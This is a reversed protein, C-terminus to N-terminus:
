HTGNKGDLKAAMKKIYEKVLDKEGRSWWKILDFLEWALSDDGMPLPEFDKHEPPAGEEEITPLFNDHDFLTIFPKRLRFDTSKGLVHIEASVFNAFICKKFSYKSEENERYFSHIIPFPQNRTIIDFATNVDSDKVFVVLDIDSLRDAHGKAFSGLIVAARFIKNENLTNSYFEAAELQLSLREDSSYENLAEIM